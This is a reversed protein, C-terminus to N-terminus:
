KCVGGVKKKLGIGDKETVGSGLLFILPKRHKYAQEDVGAYVLGSFCLSSLCCSICSVIVLFQM